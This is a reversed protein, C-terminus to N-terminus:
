FFVSVLLNLASLGLLLNILKTFGANGMREFVRLGITAALMTLPIVFLATYFFQKDLYGWYAFLSLSFLGMSLNFAQFVGRKEQKTWGFLGAWITTVVGSLASIGGFVGSLIGIPFHFREASRPLSLRNQLVLVFLLNLCILLAVGAKFQPLPVHPLLAIGFPVGILGGLTLPLARKVEIMRWIRPMTLLQGCTMCAAMLPVVTTPPLVILWFGASMLAFGFGTLGNVFGGALAGAALLALEM